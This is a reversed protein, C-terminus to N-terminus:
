SSKSSGRGSTSSNPSRSRTSGAGSSSPAKGAGDVEDGDEAVPLGAAEAAKEEAAIADSIQVDLAVIVQEKEDEAINAKLVRERIDRLEAVNHEVTVEGAYFDPVDEARLTPHDVTLLHWLLVRRAKMGGQQVAALWKDWSDGFRKEIMEAKSARVKGPDFDWRQEDGGEPAYTVFM